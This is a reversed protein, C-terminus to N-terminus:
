KVITRFRVFRSEGPRLTDRLKWTLVTAGDDGTATSFDAAVNAAASDPVLTLRTPLADALVIGTLPRDRLGAISGNGFNLRKLLQYVDLRPQRCGGM